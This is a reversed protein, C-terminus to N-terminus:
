VKVALKEANDKAERKMNESLKRTVEGLKGMVKRFTDETRDQTSSRMTNRRDLTHAPHSQHNSPALGFAQRGKIMYAVRRELTIFLLTRINM